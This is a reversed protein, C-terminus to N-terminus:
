IFKETLLTTLKFAEIKSISMKAAGAGGVVCTHAHATKVMPDLADIECVYM